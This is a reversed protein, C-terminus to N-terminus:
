AVYLYKDIIKDDSVRDGLTVLHITIANLRMAFDEVYEWIDRLM